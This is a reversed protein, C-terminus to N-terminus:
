SIDKIVFIAEPETIVPLSTQWGEAEVRPPKNSFAQLHTARGSTNQGAARGIGVYGVSNGFDRGELAPNNLIDLDGLDLSADRGTNCIFVMADRALFYGNGEQTNYTVDYTEIPPLGDRSLADNIAAQSARGGLTQLTGGSTVVTLGVRSKVNANNALLSVVPRATIIRSLTYGKAAAADAIAAFDDFPDNADNSWPAALSVRHGAPDVYDVEEYYGNDGQRIVQADVIAEWRQKESKVALPLNITIDLWQILQLMAEMTQNTGLLELLADYEEATFESAIDINGLEVKMDGMLASGKKQAPSFRTGDNAIVTRYRIARERYMNKMVPREPLLEPGKYAMNPGFQALRNTMVTQIQGSSKLSDLLESITPM